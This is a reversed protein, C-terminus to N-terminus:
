GGFFSHFLESLMFLLYIFLYIFTPIFPLLFYKMKLFFQKEGENETITYFIFFLDLITFSKLPLCSM